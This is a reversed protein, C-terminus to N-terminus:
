HVLRGQLLPTGKNARPQWSRAREIYGFGSEKWDWGVTESHGEVLVDDVERPWQEELVM